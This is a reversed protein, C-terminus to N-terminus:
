SSGAFLGPAYVPELMQFVMRVVADAKSEGAMRPIPVLKGDRYSYRIGDPKLYFKLFGGEWGLFFDAKSMGLDPGEKLEPYWGQLETNQVGQRLGEVLLTLASFIEKMDEQNRRFAIYSEDHNRLIHLGDGLKELLEKAARSPDM